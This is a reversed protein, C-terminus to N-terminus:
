AWLKPTHRQELPIILTPWAIASNSLARDIGLGKRSSRREPRALPVFAAILKDMWGLLKTGPRALHLFLCM